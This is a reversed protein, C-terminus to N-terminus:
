ATITETIKLIGKIKDTFWVETGVDLDPLTDANYISLMFSTLEPIHKQCYVEFLRAFIEKNKMYYDRKEINHRLLKTRYASRTEYPISYSPLDLAYDIAHGLEHILAGDWGRNFALVKNTDQYHAISGARGRAGFSFGLNTLDFNFHKELIAISEALNESVYCRENDSLSNGFQVAAVKGQLLSVDFSKSETKWPRQVGNFETFSDKTKKDFYKHLEYPRIYYKIDKVKRIYYNYKKILLDREFSKSEIVFTRLEKDDGKFDSLLECSALCKKYEYEKLVERGLEISEHLALKFKDSYELQLAKLNNTSRKKFEKQKTVEPNEYTDNRHRHAGSIDAGINRIDSPRENYQKM